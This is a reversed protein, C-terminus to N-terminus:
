RLIRCNVYSIMGFNPFCPYNKLRTEMYDKHTASPRVTRFFVTFSRSLGFRFVVSMDAFVTLSGWDAVWVYLFVWLSQTVCVLEMGAVRFVRLLFLPFSERLGEAITFSQCLGLLGLSGWRGMFVTLSGCLGDLVWLSRWPGLFVTLSGYLGDLVWLSRWPDVFVIHFGPKLVSKM